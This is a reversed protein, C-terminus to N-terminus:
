RKDKLKIIAKGENPIKVCYKSPITISEGNQLREELVVIQEDSLYGDSTLNQDSCNFFAISFTFVISLLIFKKMM